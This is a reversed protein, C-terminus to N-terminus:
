PAQPVSLPHSEQFGYQPCHPHVLVIVHHCEPLMKLYEALHEEPNNGYRCTQRYDYETGLVCREVHQESRASAIEHGVPYYLAQAVANADVEM